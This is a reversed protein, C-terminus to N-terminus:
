PARQHRVNPREREMDAALHADMQDAFLTQWYLGDWRRVEWRPWRLSHQPVDPGGRLWGYFAARQTAANREAARLADAFQLLTARNFTYTDSHQPDSSRRYRWAMRHALAEVPDLGESIASTDGTKTSM